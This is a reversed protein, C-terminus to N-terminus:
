LFLPLFNAFEAVIVTHNENEIIYSCTETKVKGTRIMIVANLSIKTAETFGKCVSIIHRGNATLFM